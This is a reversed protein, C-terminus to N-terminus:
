ANGAILQVEEDVILAAMLAEGVGAAVADDLEGGAAGSNPEPRPTPVHHGARHGPRTRADDDGGLVADGDAQVGVM